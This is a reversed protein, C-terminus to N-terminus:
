TKYIIINLVNSFSIIYRFISHSTKIIYMSTYLFRGIFFDYSAQIVATGGLKLFYDEDRLSVIM